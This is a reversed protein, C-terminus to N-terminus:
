NYVYRIENENKSTMLEIPVSSRQEFLVTQVHTKKKIWQVHAM